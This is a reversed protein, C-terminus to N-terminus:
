SRPWVALTRESTAVTHGERLTNVEQMLRLEILKPADPNKQRYAELIYRLDEPHAVFRPLQGEIEARRLGLVSPDMRIEEGGARVGEVFASTIQGSTRNAISYMRFPGFPFSDDDGWLTGVMVAGLVALTALGRILRGSPSLM